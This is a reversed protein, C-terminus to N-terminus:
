SPGDEVIGVSLYGYKVPCPFSGDQHPASRLGAVRPPVRNAHVLRETGRSYGSYLARVLAEDAGLEPLLERRLEGAHPGTTWYALASRASMTPGGDDRAWWVGVARRPQLGRLAPFAGLPFELLLLLFNITAKWPCSKRM